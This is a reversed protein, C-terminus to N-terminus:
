QMVNLQVQLSGGRLNAVDTLGNGAMSAVLVQRPSNVPMQMVAQANM